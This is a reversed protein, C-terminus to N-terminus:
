PGYCGPRLLLFLTSVRVSCVYFCVRGACSACLHFDGQSFENPYTRPMHLLISERLFYKICHCVVYFFYELSTNQASENLNEPDKLLHM